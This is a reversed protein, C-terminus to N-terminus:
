KFGFTYKLKEWLARRKFANDEPIVDGQVLIPLSADLINLEPDLQRGIGELVVTGVCLTSFNGEIKVHNMRVTDLVASLFEGVRIESMKKSRVDQFIADMDNVFREEEEPTLNHDKAFQVMLKAGHKGERQVIAKFLLKFHEFDSPSLHSVLGVDLFVLGLKGKENKRVLINGPHLDAHVFNDLLMMKLYADLGIKALKVSEPSVARLYKSNQLVEGEEFTEALVGRTAPLAEVLSPFVVDPHGKFHEQFTKLNNAEIQFDSQAKMSISFQAIADCLSLWKMGPLMEIVHAFFAMLALDVDLTAEVTPHLVKVVIQKGERLRARYVQGIAGSALPVREFYVFLDEMKKAYTTEILKQTYAFDHAPCRYCLKSIYDIFEVPFIDRRTSAWQGLKIWSAGLTELTFRLYKWWLQSMRPVYLIPFFYMLPFFLVVILVARFFCQAYFYM